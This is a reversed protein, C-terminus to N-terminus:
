SSPRRTACSAGSATPRRPRSRRTAAARRARPLPVGPASEWPHARPALKLNRAGQLTILRQLELMEAFSGARRFAEAAAPPAGRLGKFARVLELYRDFAANDLHKGLAILRSVSAATEAKAEAKRASAAEAAALAAREDRGAARPAEHPPPARGRHQM